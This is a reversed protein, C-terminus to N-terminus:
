AIITGDDRGTEVVTSAFIDIGGELCDYDGAAEAATDDFGLRHHADEGDLTYSYREGETVVYGEDPVVMEGSYLVDYSSDSEAASADGRLGQPDSENAASGRTGDCGVGAGVGGGDGGFGVGAGGVVIRTSFSPVNDASALGDGSSGGSKMGVFDGGKCFPPSSCPPVKKAVVGAASQRANSRRRSSM